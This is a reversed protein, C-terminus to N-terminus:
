LGICVYKLELYEDMGYASGERGLGSQKIGGFPGVENSIIGSNVGVIGYELAEAAKWIRGIDRSYFYSALGFQSNNALRIAEEDSEFPIIPAVPGFTEEHTILMDSTVNSLITPEYFTGGLPSPKGGAILKAGKSIADAVHREVKELAAQEILPGQTNGPEMGNGVKIVQIAKAFKEVFEDQVKKHVYFRNACVCTQGSNRYKSAMAGSVAADIDADEFVIFPAHGGLELGLKKVTPACQAMLIRGVETSGTFSLHRVTPSACLTKGIAISQDADATLVNIVGAPVGARQALEALALASLPTLEAPKIVITCGAAMAPAIKRTIMAIPFNWPTIAVCVGIPQKMVIMRKDSWTTSPISGTVRKAEEAFWEVFSAGYAVEGAAETLPKGQELTMLTALDQTNEIILDFWKRMVHAREKGTKSKWSEFAHKAAEIAHEADNPELNSVDAILEGTAPNHVAFTKGSNSKFWAGNIFAAENFLSPDKLLQRIDTKQM